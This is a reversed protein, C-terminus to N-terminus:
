LYFVINKVEQTGLELKTNDWDCTKLSYCLYEGYVLIKLVFKLFGTMLVTAATLSSDKEKPLFSM